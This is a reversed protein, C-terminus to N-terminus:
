TNVMMIDAAMLRKRQQEAKARLGLITNLSHELPYQRPEKLLMARSQTLVTIHFM